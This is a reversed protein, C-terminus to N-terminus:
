TFCNFCLSAIYTYGGYCICCRTLVSVVYMHFVYFIQFMCKCCIHIAVTVYAINLYFVQLKCCSFLQQLMLSFVSSVNPIYKQLTHTFCIFCGSRAVYIQFLYFMKFLRKCCKDSVSTVYAVHAVNQDVKLVDMHFCNCCVKSVDLINSVYAYLM